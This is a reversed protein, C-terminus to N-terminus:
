WDSFGSLTSKVDGTEPDYLRVNGAEFFSDGVALIKGGPSFAVCNIRKDGRLTCKCSGTGADWLRVTRDDSGSVIVTGDASFAV